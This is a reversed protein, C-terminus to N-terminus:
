YRLGCKIDIVPARPPPFYCYGDLILWDTWAPESVGRGVLASRKKRVLLSTAMRPRVGICWHILHM